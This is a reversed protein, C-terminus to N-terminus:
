ALDEPYTVTLEQISKPFDKRNNTIFRDAGHLVASALHIADAARLGYSAGLEIASDATVRDIPQLDLTALIAALVRVAATDGERKPKALVEPLLVVSGIGVKMRASGGEFLAGLRSAFPHTPSAAYIIVDSDFADV